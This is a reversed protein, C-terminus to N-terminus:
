QLRGNYTLVERLAAAPLHSSTDIHLYFLAWHLPETVWILLHAM